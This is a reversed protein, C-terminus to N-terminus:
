LESSERGGRGQDSKKAYEVIDRKELDMLEKMLNEECGQLNMGLSKGLEELKTAEKLKDRLWSLNNCNRIGSDPFCNRIGSDPLCNSYSHLFHRVHKRHTASRVAGRSGSM